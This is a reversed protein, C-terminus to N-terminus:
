GRLELTLWGNRIHSRVLKLDQLGYTAVIGAKQHPLLGSLVVTAGRALHARMPHSLKKLPRALINAVVLDFPGREAFCPAHFGDSVEARVLTACGNIRANDRAVAVSVPDIDTALVTRRTAKALAIALVGSGTGLDLIQHCPRRRLVGDLVDLCGATTGHHGTGFALGADIEVAITGTRAVGRDHSGHLIFRGARVPKLESLTHAVWNVDAVQEEQLVLGFADGGLANMVRQWWLSRESDDVYLSVNWQGSNEVEEFLALPIGDDEFAQELISSIHSAEPKRASLYLRTQSLCTM